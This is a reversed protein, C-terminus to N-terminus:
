FLTEQGAEEKDWLPKYFQRNDLPWVKATQQGPAVAKEATDIMMIAADIMDIEHVIEAELVQPRVPSGYELLGHHSLVVHRLLLLDESNEDINLEKAARIIEEDILVIHGILNGRLTYQTNEYGTFELCKAMDHLLIGAYLLSANLQPYVGAIAEALKLMTTEHYALGGEFAHHNSKAAPFEFFEKDFKKLLARVIRAWTANEIKFVFQQVTERLEAEDVPSAVRFKKPDTPEGDEPLRVKIQNVQPRNNYVERTGEVHVVTGPAFKELEGPQADWKNGSIEGSEDQITLALYDKGAKTKRLEISKVLYFGEFGEGEKMDKIQTM